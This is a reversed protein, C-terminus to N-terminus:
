DPVSLRAKATDIRDLVAKDGKYKSRLSQEDEDLRDCKLREVASQIERAREKNYPEEGGWYVCEELRTLYSSVDPPMQQPSTGLRSDAHETETQAKCATVGLFMSCGALSVTLASKRGIRQLSRPPLMM